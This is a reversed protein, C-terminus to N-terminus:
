VRVTQRVQSLPGQTEGPCCPPASGTPLPVTSGTGLTHTPSSVWDRSPQLVQPPPPPYDGHSSQCHLPAPEPMLAPSSVRGGASPPVPPRAPVTSSLEGQHHPYPLALLSVLEAVVLSLSLARLQGVGFDTDVVLQESTYFPWGWLGLAALDGYCLADVPYSPTGALSSGINM